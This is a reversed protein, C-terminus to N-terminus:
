IGEGRNRPTTYLEEQPNPSKPTIKSLHEIIDKDPKMGKFAERNRDFEEYTKMQLLIEKQTM